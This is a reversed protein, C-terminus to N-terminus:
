SGKIGDESIAHLCRQAVARLREALEPADRVEFDASRHAATSCGAVFDDPAM